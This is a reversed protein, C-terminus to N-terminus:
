GTPLILFPVTGALLVMFFLLVGAIWGGLVDTMFHVGLYIRSFGVLLILGVSFLLIMWGAISGSAYVWGLYAIMLYFATALMTHGSPFSYEVGYLFNQPFNPRVRSVMRQLWQSLLTASAVLVVLMLARLWDRQSVLWLCILFSVNRILTYKGLNTLLHFLKDKGPTARSIVWSGFRFDWREIEKQRQVAVQLCGYCLALFLVLSLELIPLNPNAFHIM